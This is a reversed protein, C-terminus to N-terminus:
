LFHNRKVETFVWLMVMPFVMPFGYSFWLSFWLSVLPFGGYSFWLFIAFSLMSALRATGWTSGREAVVSSSCHTNGIARHSHWGTARQLTTVIKRCLAFLKDILATCHLCHLYVLQLIDWYVCTLIAILLGRSGIHICLIWALTQTMCVCTGVRYPLVNRCGWRSPSEFSSAWSKIYGISFPELDVFAFSFAESCISSLPENFGGLQWRASNRLLLWAYQAHNRIWPTNPSIGSM